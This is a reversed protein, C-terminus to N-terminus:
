VEVARGLTKEAMNRALEAAMAPVEARVRDADAAVEALAAAIRKDAEGRAEGVRRTYVAQAEARKQARFDAVEAQARAFATEWQQLKLAAREQLESAARRTGDTAAEREKLYALMPKFLISNLGFLLVLFPVAEMLVLFPDPIINM